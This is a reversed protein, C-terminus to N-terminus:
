NEIFTPQQFGLGKLEKLVIVSLATLHRQPIFHLSIFVLFSTLLMEACAVAIM